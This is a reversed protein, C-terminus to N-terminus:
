LEWLLFFFKEKVCKCQNKQHIFLFSKQRNSEMVSNFFVLFTVFKGKWDNEKKKRQCVFLEKLSMSVCAKKKWRLKLLVKKKFSLTWMKRWVNGSKGTKFLGQNFFFLFVCCALHWTNSPFLWKAQKSTQLTTYFFFVPECLFFDNQFM